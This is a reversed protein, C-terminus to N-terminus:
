AKHKHAEIRTQIRRGLPILDVVSARWGRTSLWGKVLRSKSFAFLAGVGFLAFAAMPCIAVLILSVATVVAALLGLAFVTIRKHAQIPLDKLLQRANELKGAEVEQMLNDLNQPSKSDSLFEFTEGFHAVLLGKKAVNDKIEASLSTRAEKLAKITPEICDKLIHDLLEKTVEQGEPLQSQWNGLEEPSIKGGDRIKRQFLHINTADNRAAKLAMETSEKQLELESLKTDYSIPCYTEKLAQLARFLAEQEINSESPPVGGVKLLRLAEEFQNQNIKGIAHMMDSRLVSVERHISYSERVAGILCGLAAIPYVYRELTWEVTKITHMSLWKINVMKTEELFTAFQFLYYYLYSCGGLFNFPLSTLHITREKVWGYDKVAIATRIDAIAKRFESFTSFVAGADPGANACRMQESEHTATNGLSPLVVSSTLPAPMSATLTGSMKIDLKNYISVIIYCIHM